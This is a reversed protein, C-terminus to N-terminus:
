RSRDLLTGPSPEQNPLARDHGQERCSKGLNLSMRWKRCFEDVVTMMSQLNGPSDALLVIDDAYLLTRLHHLGVQVNSACQILKKALENIFLGFLSPSLPCGQRVGQLIDVKRSAEGDVLAQASLISYLSRMIRWAKGQIGANWLCKSLGVHWVTDFAKRFDIFYLFTHKGARRRRLLTEHLTFIQDVTSRKPRFGGQEEVLHTELYTTLRTAWLSLYLKGLCSILSIGRYNGPDSEDGKKHLYTVLSTGWERPVIEQENIWNFLKLLLRKSTAGGAKLVENRVQDPGAAKGYQLRQIAGDLEDISFKADFESDELTPSAQAHQRVEDEVQRRFTEDFLPDETPTGLQEQHHAWAEKREELTTALNGDQDRVPKSSNGKSSTPLIRRVLTWFRKMAHSSYSSSIDALLADWDEKKKQRVLAKCKRRADLFANWREESPSKRFQKHLERRNAVARRVEGDFWSRSFRKSVVKSGVSEDLSTEIRTLFDGLVRTCREAKTEDQPDAQNPSWNEFNARLAQEYPSTYDEDESPPKEQERLVEFNYKKFPLRRKKQINERSWYYYASLLHHDSNLDTYDVHFQSRRRMHHYESVLIHDIQTYTDRVKDYRTYWFGPSAPPCSHGGTTVMDRTELLNVLLNGNPSRTGISFPGVMRNEKPSRAAGVRANLDGAIVVSGQAQHAEASLSLAGWATTRELVPASEQPMYASCIFLDKLGSSGRLHIWGQNPTSPNVKSCLSCLHLAVLLAVGGHGGENPFSFAKYGEVKLDGGPHLRTESLAVIDYKKELFYKGLEAINVKLGGQVNLSGIRLRCIKKNKPLTPDRGKPAGGSVRRRGATNRRKNPASHVSGESTDSESVRDISNDSLNLSGASNSMESVSGVNHGAASTSGMTNDGESFTSVTSHPEAESEQEPGPERIDDRSDQDSSCADSGSDIHPLSSWYGTYPSVGSHQSTTPDPDSDSEGSDVADSGESLSHSGVPGPQQSIPSERDSVSRSSNRRNRHEERLIFPRGKAARWGLKECVAAISQFRQDRHQPSHLTVVVIRRSPRGEWCISAIEGAPLSGCPKSLLSTVAHIPLSKPVGWLVVSCNDRSQLAKRRIKATVLTWGEDNPHPHTNAARDSSTKSPTPDCPRVAQTASQSTVTDVSPPDATTLRTM